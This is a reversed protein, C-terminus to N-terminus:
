GAVAVVVMPPPPERSIRRSALEAMDGMTCKGPTKAWPGFRDPKTYSASNLRSSELVFDDGDPLAAVVNPRLANNSDLEERTPAKRLIGSRITVQRASGHSFGVGAMILVFSIAVIQTRRRTAKQPEGEDRIRTYRLDHRQM